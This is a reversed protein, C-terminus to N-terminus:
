GRVSAYFAELIKKKANLFDHWQKKMLEVDMEVLDGTEIEQKEGKIKERNGVGKVFPRWQIDLLNIFVRKWVLTGNINVVQVLGSTGFSCLFLNSHSWKLATCAPHVYSCILNDKNYIDVNEVDYVASVAYKNMTVIAMGETKITRQLVFGRKLEFFFVNNRSVGLFYNDCVSLYDVDPTENFTNGDGYTEIVTIERNAIKKKIHLFLRNESEFKAISKLNRHNKLLKDGYFIDGAEVRLKSKEKTTTYGTYVDYANSDLYIIKDDDSFSIKDAKLNWENFKKENAFLTVVNSKMAIFRGTKSVVCQGPFEHVMKLTKGNEFLFSKSKTVVLIQENKAGVQHCLVEKDSVNILPEINKITKFYGLRNCVIRAGNIMRNNLYNILQDNVRASSVLIGDKFVSNAETIRMCNLRHLTKICEDLSPLSLNLIVLYDNIDM